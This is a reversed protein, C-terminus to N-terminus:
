NSDKFAKLRDEVNGLKIKFYDAGDTTYNLTVSYGDGDTWSMDTIYNVANGNDVVYTNDPQLTTWAVTQDGAIATTYKFSFSPITESNADDSYQVDFRYKTQSTKDGEM